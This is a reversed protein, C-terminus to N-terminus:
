KGVGKAHRERITQHNEFGKRVGHVLYDFHGTRGEVERVTVKGNTAIAVYLQLWAGRPTLQVTLGEASTVLGFSEPLNIVAQGNVVEASGRVYTGAEPGELCTYVIEKTPDTPHAQVFNKNGTVNLDTHVTIAGDENDITNEAGDPGLIISGNIEIDGGSRMSNSAYVRSVALVPVDYTPDMGLGVYTVDGVSFLLAGSVPGFSGVSISWGEQLTLTGSFVPNGSFVPAGSFNPNGTFNLGGSIKSIVTAGQTGTVDGSLAGTFNTATNASLAANATNASLATNASTANGNLNGTFTGAFQNASNGFTVANAYTGALRAGPVTGFTLQSADLTTLGGGSGNFINANNNFTVANSYAGTIQASQVTGVLNTTPVSGATTAYLAYPTSLVPQRPTLTTFASAGNTRVGIELWRGEGTFASSGFDLVTTFMGNSVVQAPKTVPGAVASGGSAASYLTFELDYSGTAPMGNDTLSGDYTFSTGLPAALASGGLSLAALTALIPHSIHTSHM